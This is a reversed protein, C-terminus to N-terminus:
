IHSIGRRLTAHGATFAPIAGCSPAVIICVAWEYTHGLEDMCTVRSMTM